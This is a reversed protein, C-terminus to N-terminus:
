VGGRHHYNLGHKFDICFYNLAGTIKWFFLGLIVGFTVSGLNGKCLRPKENNLKSCFKSVESLGGDKQEVGRLQSGLAIIFLLGAGVFSWVFVQIPDAFLTNFQSFIGACYGILANGIIYRWEVKRVGQFFDCILAWFEENAKTKNNLTYYM